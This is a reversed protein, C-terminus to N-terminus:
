TVESSALSISSKNSSSSPGANSPNSAIRNQAGAPAGHMRSSAFASLRGRTIWAPIKSVSHTRKTIKKVPVGPISPASAEEAAAFASDPIRFSSWSHDLGSDQIRFPNTQYNEQGACRSDFPASAEEAAAFASHPFSVPAQPLISITTRVAKLGMRPPCRSPRPPAARLRRSRANRGIYSQASASSLNEARRSCPTQFAPAHGCQRDSAHGVRRQAFISCRAYAAPWGRLRSAARLPCAIATRIPCGVCVPCQHVLWWHCGPARGDGGCATPCGAFLVSTSLGGTAGLCSTRGGGCATPCGAFLVSTSLGGTAGLCSTRGWRLRHPVWYVPRQHVLWWHCM